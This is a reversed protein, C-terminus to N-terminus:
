PNSDGGRSRLISTTISARVSTWAGPSRARSTSEHISLRCLRRKLGFVIVSYESAARSNVSYRCRCPIGESAAEIRRSCM